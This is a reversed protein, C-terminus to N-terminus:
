RARFFRETTGNEKQVKIKVERLCRPCRGYYFTEEKNLYIRSYVNCCEFLIGLFKKKEAMIRLINKYKNIDFLGKFM